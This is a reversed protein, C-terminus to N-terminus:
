FDVLESPLVDFVVLCRILIQELILLLLIINLVSSQLCLVQESKRVGHFSHPPADKHSAEEAHVSVVPRPVKLISHRPESSDRPYAHEVDPNGVTNLLIDGLM